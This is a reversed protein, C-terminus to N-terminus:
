LPLLPGAHAQAHLAPKTARAAGLAPDPDTSHTGAGEQGAPAASSGGLAAFPVACAHAQPGPSSVLKSASPASAPQTPGQPGPERM